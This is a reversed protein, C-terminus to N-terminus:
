RYKNSYKNSYDNRHMAPESSLLVILSTFPVVLSSALYLQGLDNYDRSGASM